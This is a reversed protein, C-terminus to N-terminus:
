RTSRPPTATPTFRRWVIKKGDQSFFPGGDYGPNDTLRKLESGDSRMIYLEMFYSPDKKLIEQEEASLEESYAHRNSAFLIHQGDPSWSGEADYGLADTLNVPDGGEAPVEFIDYYADFSWSYRRGKGEARKDLEAKQKKQAEPDLHSSAFLVREGTPHIWACTTKGVGTSVRRTDGTELDMLYIQYFPNGEERESQFVLQTGDGNFYGEGARRGEFTLQRPNEILRGEEPEAAMATLPAALPAALLLGLTLCATRTLAPRSGPTTEKM